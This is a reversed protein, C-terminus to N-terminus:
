RAIKVGCRNCTYRYFSVSGGCYTCTYERKKQQIFADIGLSRIGQMDEPIKHRYAFRPDGEHSRILKKDLLKCPVHECYACYDIHKMEYCCRRISCNWKSTRKQDLNDSSCGLCSLNFSPCAACFVGCPAVEDKKDSM